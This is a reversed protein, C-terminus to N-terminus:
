SFKERTRTYQVVSVIPNPVAWCTLSYVFAKKRNNSFCDLAVKLTQSFDTNASPAELSSLTSTLRTPEWRPGEARLWTSLRYIDIIDYLETFLMSGFAWSVDKVLHSAVQEHTWKQALTIVWILEGPQQARGDKLWPGFCQETWPINKTEWRLVLADNQLPEGSQLQASGARLKMSKLETVTMNQRMWESWVRNILLVTTCHIKFYWQTKCENYENSASYLRNDCLATLNETRIPRFIISAFWLVRVCPLKWPPKELIPLFFHPYNIM